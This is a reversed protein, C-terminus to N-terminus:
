ASRLEIGVEMLDERHTEDDRLRLTRMQLKPANILTKTRHPRGQAIVPEVAGTARSM